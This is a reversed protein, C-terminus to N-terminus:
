RGDGDEEYQEFLARAQSIADKIMDAAVQSASEYAFGVIEKDQDCTLTVSVHADFGTGYDKDSMGFSVSVKANGDGVLDDIEDNEM